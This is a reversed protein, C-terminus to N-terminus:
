PERREGWDCFGNDKTYDNTNLWDDGDETVSWEEHYMPCENERRHKCDKCRVVEVADITPANDIAKNYLEMLRKVEVANDKGTITVSFNIRTKLAEADILRM